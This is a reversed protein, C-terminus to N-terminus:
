KSEKWKCFGCEESAKPMKGKLIKIAKKFIDEANKLGKEM